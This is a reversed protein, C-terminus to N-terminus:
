RRGRRALRRKHSIFLPRIFINRKAVFANKAIKNYIL